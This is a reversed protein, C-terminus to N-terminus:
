DGHSVQESSGTRAWGELAGVRLELDEIRRHLEEKETKWIITLEGHFKEQSSSGPGDEMGMQGQVQQPGSAQLLAQYAAATETGRVAEGTGVPCWAEHWPTPARCIQCFTLYESPM